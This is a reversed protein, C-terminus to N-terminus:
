RDLVEKAIAAVQDMDAKTNLETACWLIGGEIPLGGLIGAAALRELFADAREPRGTVFEHFFPAGYKLRLGPVAALQDALYHAKAFSQSAAARLGSPGMVALYAAATLACLAENSCINSTARERRIHQERAQWTLVYARNGAGDATQGVIRGPLRRALEETTAMVGLYPGGFGVPLGLPQGEAVAVDAGYERASKLVAAAIPNVALVLKAGSAHVLDAAAGADEIVGNFNPQALIACATQGDLMAALAALDTAGDRQPVVEFPSGHAWCYTRVTRVLEPNAAASILTKPRTRSRCMAAAEAAASAGDYTSANAVDMGTLECMMTQYEFISQLVGQSIEAQYPTYATTLSEKGVAATAAAPIYHCYAGAGRFVSRYTRNAEALRRMSRAVELESQGAPLGPVAPLVLAAPVAAYLDDLSELGIAALMDLQQSPTSPVYDGM